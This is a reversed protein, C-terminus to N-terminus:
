TRLLQRLDLPVTVGDLEVSGEVHDDDLHLVPEWTGGVNRLVDLARLAPDLIWYQGVGGEAYEMSKRVTDESRTSWSLVEAVMLPPRSVWGDAPVTDTMMVDPLRVRNRPLRLYVEPVVHREPFHTVLLVILRGTASGHDFVPPSNMIVAEGDVWEARPQEPLALYDDWSMRVRLLPEERRISM